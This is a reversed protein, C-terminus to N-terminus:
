RAVALDRCRRPAPPWAAPREPGCLLHQVEKRQRGLTADLRGLLARFDARGKLRAFLPRELDSRGGGFAPEAAEMFRIAEEDRGDYAAQLARLDALMAPAAGAREFLALREGAEARHRAAVEVQGAARAADAMFILTAPHHTAGHERARLREAVGAAEGVRGAAYLAEFLTGEAEPEDPDERAARRAQELAAPVDGLALSVKAAGAPFALRAEERLGLTALAAALQLAPRELGQRMAALLHRVAEAREGRGLAVWGSAWAAWAPDLKQLRELAAPIEADRGYYQLTPVYNLLALKSLPDIRVAEAAAELIGDYRGLSELAMRRWIRLESSPNGVLARDFLALAEQERGAVHEAFGAAALVEPHDPALAAARDVLPRARALAEQAPLDGYTAEGRQLLLTAIALDAWAVAYGPDIAM